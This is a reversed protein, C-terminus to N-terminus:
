RLRWTPQRVLAPQLLGAKKFFIPESIKNSHIKNNTESWIPAVTRTQQSLRNQTKRKRGHIWDLLPDNILAQLVSVLKRRKKKLLDLINASVSLL